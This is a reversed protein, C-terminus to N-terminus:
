PGSPPRLVCFENDDPDLLVYWVWGQEEIPEGDGALRAGLEILRTVEEDLDPVRLDLHMRNKTTKSEPVRQLLLEIGDGSAPLLPRYPEADPYPAIYGLAASWFQASRDLDACDLVVVLATDDRGGFRVPKRDMAGTHYPSSAWGTPAIPMGVQRNEEVGVRGGTVQQNM